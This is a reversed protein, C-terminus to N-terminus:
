SPQPQSSPSDAGSDAATRQHSTDRSQSAIAPGRRNLRRGPKLRIGKLPLHTGIPTAGSLGTESPGQRAKAVFSDQDSLEPALLALRDAIRIVAEHHGAASMEQMQKTLRGIEAQRRSEELRVAADEYSPDVETVAQYHAAATEWDDSREAERGKQYRLGLRASRFMDEIESDGPLRARLAGLLEIAEQWQGSWFAGTAAVRLQQITEGERPKAGGLDFLRGDTSRLYLVPTAWELTEDKASSVAIRAIRVAEDVPRNRAIAQYLARSFVKAAGDTIEFQMAVVAPVTRVLICATSSFLDRSSATGSQCTNLVVLRPSPRATSLLRALSTAYMRQVGGAEDAFAVLGEARAPDFGGHGIFHFVHCGDILRDQLHDWTQGEVWALQVLGEDILPRLSAELNRQEPPQTSPPM